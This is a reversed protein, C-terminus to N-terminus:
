RSTELPIHVTVIGGAPNPGTHCTGGLETARERISTLGVGPTWADARSSGNDAIQLRLGAHNTTITVTAMTATSHRTVNTLAETAIRYAAVEVAAPLEALDGPADITVLLPFGDIRQTIGQAHERLSGTLGLGDLTPPRLNYVLRRIDNIAATTESRLDALLAVTRDADTRALMRAADAKLVVGTLTPGLGDHLDRRLRRREEERATILRGRANSLDQSLTTAHVAVALPAALLALIREDPSDLRFEGARLGIILEGIEDDGQQLVLAHRAAPPNGHRALERGGSVISASPLRMVECLAALVGSLGTGTSTGIQGLRAGVEAIARVPDQRAGYFARNVLRQLWV